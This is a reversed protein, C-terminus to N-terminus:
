GRTQGAAGAVHRDAGGRRGHLVQAQRPGHRERAASAWARRGGWQPSVPLRTRTGVGGAGGANRADPVFAPTADAAEMKRTVAAASEAAGLNQKVANRPLTTAPPGPPAGVTPPLCLPRRLGRMAIPSAVITWGGPTGGQSAAVPLLEIRISLYARTPLVARRAEVSGGHAATDEDSGIFVSILDGSQTARWKKLQM